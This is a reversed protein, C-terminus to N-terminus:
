SEKKKKAPPIIELTPTWVAGLKGKEGLSKYSLFATILNPLHEARPIAGRKGSTQNKKKRETIKKKKKKGQIEGKFM